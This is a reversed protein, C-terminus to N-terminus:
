DCSSCIAGGGSQDAVSWQVLGWAIRCTCVWDLVVLIVVRFFLTIDRRGEDLSCGTLDILLLYRFGLRFQFQM